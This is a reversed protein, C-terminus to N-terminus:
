TSNAMAPETIPIGGSYFYVYPMKCSRCGIETCIRGHLESLMTLIEHAATRDVVIDEGCIKM